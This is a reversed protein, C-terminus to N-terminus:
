HTHRVKDMDDANANYIKSLYTRFKRLFMICRDQTEEV